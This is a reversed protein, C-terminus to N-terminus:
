RVCVVPENTRKGEDRCVRKVGCFVALDNRGGIMLSFEEFMKIEIGFKMMLRGRDGMSFRVEFFQAM